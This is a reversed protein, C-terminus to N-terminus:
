SNPKAFMVSTASAYRSSACASISSATARSATHRANSAAAFSCPSRLGNRSCTAFVGMLPVCYVHPQDISRKNTGERNEDRDDGDREARTERQRSHGYVDERIEIQWHDVDRLGVAPHIRRLHLAIQDRVVFIVEEVDCADLVDLRLGNLTDAEDFEEKM